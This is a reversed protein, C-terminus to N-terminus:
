AKYAQAFVEAFDPFKHTGGPQQQTARYDQWLIGKRLAANMETFKHAIESPLGASLMGQLADEDSFEVWPLEPKGIARGLISAVEAAMREDSAVYFVQKGQGPKELEAAARAAIDLPNVMIITATAPYNAGIIGANRIMDINSLFNTYFFAARLHTVSVGELQNLAQEIIYLGAIPGTGAPVDAGISSLNVVHPVNTKRIAAVYSDAAAVYYARYDSVSFDPPVMTYVADAGQFATSLFAADTVSGIAVHAGLAEIEAGRDKNSSIVTLDHGKAILATALPKSINGTSGTIVIKM